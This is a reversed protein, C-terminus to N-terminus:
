LTAVAHADDPYAHFFSGYNTMRREDQQAPIAQEPKPADSRTQGSEGRQEAEQASQQAQLRGSLDDKLARLGSHGPIARLADEVIALGEELRGQQQM